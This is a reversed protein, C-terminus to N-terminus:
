ECANEGFVHVGLLRKEPVSFLLKLLGWREGFLKPRKILLAAREINRDENVVGSGIAVAIGIKGQNSDILEIEFDICHGRGNRNANGKRYLTSIPLKIRRPANFSIELVALKNQRLGQQRQEM